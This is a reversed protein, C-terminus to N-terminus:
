RRRRRKVEREFHISALNADIYERVINIAERSTFVEQFSFTLFIDVTYKTHLFM